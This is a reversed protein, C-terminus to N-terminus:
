EQFRSFLTFNKINITTLMENYYNCLFFEIKLYNISNAAQFYFNYIYMFHTNKVNSKHMNELAQAFRIMIRIRIRNANDNKVATTQTIVVEQVKCLDRIIV